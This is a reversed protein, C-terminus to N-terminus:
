IVGPAVKVTTFGGDATKSGAVATSLATWTCRKGDMGPPFEEGAGLAIVQRLYKNETVFTGSSTCKTGTTFSGGGGNLGGGATLEQSSVEQQPM